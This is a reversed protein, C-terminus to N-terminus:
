DVATANDKDVIGDGAVCCGLEMNNEIILELTHGRVKSRKGCGHYVVKKVGKPLVVL